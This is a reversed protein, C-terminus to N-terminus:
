SGVTSGDSSDGDSSEGDATSVPSSAVASGGTPESGATAPTEPSEKGTEAVETLDDTSDVDDTSDQEAEAAESLDITSDEELEAAEAVVISDDNREVTETDAEISVKDAEADVVTDGSSQLSTVQKSLDAENDENAPTSEAIATVPLPDSMLPAASKLMPAFTTDVETTAAYAVPFAPPPAPIGALFDALAGLGVSELFSLFQFRLSALPIAIVFFVVLGVGFVYSVISNWATTIPEFPDSAPGIAAAAVVGDPMASMKVQDVASEGTMRKPQAPLSTPQADLDEPALLKLQGGVTRVLFGRPSATTPLTFATLQVAQREAIPAHVEPPVAVLSLALIGASAVSIGTIVSKRTYDM